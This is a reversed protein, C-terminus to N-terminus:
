KMEQFRAEVFKIYRWLTERDHDWKEPRWCFHLWPKGNLSNQGSGQPQRSDALRLDHDAFFGALQNPPYGPPVNILICTESKSWGAPLKIRPVELHFSGDGQMKVQADPHDELVRDIQTKVSPLLGISGDGAIGSPLDYFKDGNKLHVVTADPIPTDPHSGPEEKFLRNEPPIDGFEKIEAGTMEEEPAVHRVDNIFITVGHPHKEEKM